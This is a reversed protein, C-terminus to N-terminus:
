IISQCRISYWYMYLMGLKHPHLPYTPQGLKASMCTSRSAEAVWYSFNILYTEDQYAQDLKIFMSSDWTSTHLISNPTFMGCPTIICALSFLFSHITNSSQSEVSEKKPMRQQVTKTRYITAYLCICLMTCPLQIWANPCNSSIQTGYGTQPWGPIFAELLLTLTVPTM